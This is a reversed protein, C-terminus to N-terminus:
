KSCQEEIAKMAGKGRGVAINSKRTEDMGDRTLLSGTSATQLQEEESDQVSVIWRSPDVVSGGLGEACFKM